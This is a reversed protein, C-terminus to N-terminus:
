EGGMMMKIESLGSIAVVEGAALGEVVVTEDGASGGIVIARKEFGKATRIFVVDEGEIRTVANSPVAIANQQASGTISVMVTKGAIIGPAAGISAKALISRTDPDISSGVSLIIGSINGPLSVTMGPKVSGAFREPVQIDLQYANSADIVFPAVMGDIPGGTQVAVSSVRGSIPARLTIVGGGSAGSIGLIRSNESVDAEAQRVAAAAEQARAGAIVGERALQQLRNANARAYGLQAQARTLSSGVQLADRSVMTALPQGKTVVQGQIVFVQRIAGAFSATVAVRAEPPLTVTAPMTGLPLGSAAQVVATKIGMQKLQKPTLAKRTEEEQVAAAAKPEPAASRFAWWGGAVIVVVLAALAAIRIRSSM